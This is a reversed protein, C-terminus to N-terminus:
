KHKSQQEIKVRDVIYEYFHIIKCKGSVVVKKDAIWKIKKNEQMFFM